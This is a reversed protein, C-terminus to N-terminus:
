HHSVNVRPLSFWRGRDGSVSAVSVRCLGHSEGWSSGLSAGVIVGRVCAMGAVRVNFQGRPDGAVVSMAYTSNADEDTPVIRYFPYAVKEM